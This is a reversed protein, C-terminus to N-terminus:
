CCGNRADGRRRRNGPCGRHNGGSSETRRGRRRRGVDNAAKVAGKSASRVVSGLDGGIEEVAHITGKIAQKAVNGLDGGIAEVARISGRVAAMAADSVEGGVDRVGSLTTVLTNKVLNVVGTAIIEASGIARDIAGNIQDPSVARAQETRARAKRAMHM